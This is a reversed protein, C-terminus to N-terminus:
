EHDVKWKCKWEEKLLSVAERYEHSDFPAVTESLRKLALCPTEDVAKVIDIAMRLQEVSTPIDTIGVVGGDRESMAIRIDPYPVGDEIASLLAGIAKPDKAVAKVLPHSRNVRFSTRRRGDDDHRVEKWIPIVPPPPKGDRTRPGGKRGRYVDQAKRRAARAIQQLAKFASAPIQVSSKDVPVKWQEDATNSLFIAVRALKYHDDPAYDLDLWGGIHILREERYVYFGQLSILSSQGGLMNWTEDPLQDRHPLIVPKILAEGPQRKLVRQHAEYQTKSSAYKATELFPDWPPTIYETGDSFRKSITLRAPQEGQPTLFRHFVRAAHDLLEQVKRAMVQENTAGDEQLLDLDIDTKDNLELFQDLNSWMVVTGSDANELGTTRLINALHDRDAQTQPSHFLKWGNGENIRDLDWQRIAAKGGESKSWVTLRRCQSLSATKLGLGFRGLEGTALSKRPDRSGARMAARLREENMGGGNDAFAVYSDGVSPVLDNMVWINEAGASVANDIIDAAATSASYGLGRLSELLTAEPPADEYDLGDDVMWRATITYSALRVTDNWTTFTYGTKTPTPLTPLTDEVTFSLDALPNGGATNLVITYLVPTWHAYLTTNSAASYTTVETGDTAADFWGNFTYHARVAPAALVFASDYDWTTSTPVAAGDYNDDYTITYSNLM